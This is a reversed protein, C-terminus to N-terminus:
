HVAPFGEKACRENENRGLGSPIRVSCYVTGQLFPTFFPEAPTLQAYFRADPLRRAFVVRWGLQLCYSMSAIPGVSTFIAFFCSLPKLSERAPAAFISDIWAQVTRTGDVNVSLVHFV